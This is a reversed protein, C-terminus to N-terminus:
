QQEDFKRVPFLHADIMWRAWVRSDEVITDLDREAEESRGAILSDEIEKARRLRFESEYYSTLADQVSGNELGLRRRLFSAAHQGSFRESERQIEEVKERMVAPHVLIKAVDVDKWASEFASLVMSRMDSGLSLVISPDNDNQGVLVRWPAAQAFFAKLSEFDPEVSRCHVWSGDDANQAEIFLKHNVLSVRLVRGHLSTM